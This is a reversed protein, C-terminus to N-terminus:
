RCCGDYGAPAEIGASVEGRAAADRAARELHPYLLGRLRGAAPGHGREPFYGDHGRVHAAGQWLSVVYQNIGTGAAEPGRTAVTVVSSTLGDM